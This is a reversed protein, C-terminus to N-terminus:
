DFDCLPSRGIHADILRRELSRRASTKKWQLPERGGEGVQALASCAM